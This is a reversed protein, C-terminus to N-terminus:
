QPMTISLYPAPAKEDPGTPPPAAFRVPPLSKLYAVVAQADADTLAAYSRWPMAPALERGDPRVGARIAAIIETESWQGLGTEQDPTLNPPYFIGLGPIGFGIKSGALFLASDPKGVLAGDTHCGVCDMIRILYEGRKVASEAGAPLTSSLVLGLSLVVSAISRMAMNEKIPGIM